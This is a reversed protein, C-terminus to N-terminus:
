AYGIATRNPNLKSTEEILNEAKETFPLVFIIRNDCKKCFAEITGKTDPSAKLLLRRCRKCRLEIYKDM